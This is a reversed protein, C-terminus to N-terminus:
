GDGGDKLKGAVDGGIGGGGDDAAGGGADGGAGGVGVGNLGCALLGTRGSDSAVARSRGPYAAPVCRGSDTPASRSSDVM